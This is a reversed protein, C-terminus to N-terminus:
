ARRYKVRCGESDTVEFEDEHLAISYNVLEDTATSIVLKSPTEHRYIGADWSIMGQEPSRTGRYTGPAFQLIAPYKDASPETSVKVWTGVLKSTEPQPDAMTFV